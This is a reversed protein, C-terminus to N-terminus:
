ERNESFAKLVRKAAEPPIDGLISYAIDRNKDVLMAQIDLKSKAEGSKFKWEYIHGILMGDSIRAVFFPDSELGVLQKAFVQFGFPLANPIQPTFGIAGAAIKIDTVKKPGWTERRAVDGSVDLKLKIQSAQLEQMNLTRLRYISNAGVRHTDELVVPLKKDIMLTRIGLEASKATVSLETVPRGLRTSEGVIKVVYNKRVLDLQYSISPWFTHFSPRIRIVRQDPFYQ